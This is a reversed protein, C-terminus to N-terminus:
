NRLEVTVISERRLRRDSPTRVAGDFRYDTPAKQLSSVSALLVHATLSLAVSAGAGDEAEVLRDVQRDADDDVGLRWLVTEVLVSEGDGAVVVSEEDAGAEDLLTCLLRGDDVRFAVTVLTDGDIENGLCDTISGDAATTDSSGIARLEIGAATGRVYQGAEWRGDAAPFATEHAAIPLLPGDRAALDLPRHGAQAVYRALTQRISWASEQLRIQEHVTARTKVAGAYLSLGATVITAGISLAIMLEILTFGGQARSRGRV